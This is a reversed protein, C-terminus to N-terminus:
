ELILQNIGQDQIFFKEGSLGTFRLFDKNLHSLDYYGFYTSTESLSKSVPQKLCQSVLANFRVMSAFKKPSFGVHQQFSDRLNRDCTFANKAIERIDVMGAHKFMMTLANNVYNINNAPAYGIKQLLYDEIAEWKASVSQFSNIKDNLIRLQKNADTVCYMTNAFHNADERWFLATSHPKPLVLIWETKCPIEFDIPVYGSGGSYINGPATNHLKGNDFNLTMADSAELMFAWLGYFRPVLKFRVTKEAQQKIYLAKSIHPQLAGCIPLQILEM